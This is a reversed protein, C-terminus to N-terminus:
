CICRGLFLWEESFFVAQTKVQIFTGIGCTDITLSISLDAVESNGAFNSLVKLFSVFVAEPKKAYAQFFSGPM